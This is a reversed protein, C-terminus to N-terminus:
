KKFASPAFRFALLDTTLRTILVITVMVITVGMIVPFDRVPPYIEEGPLVASVLMSGLGQINILKEVIITTGLMFIFKNSLAVFVPYAINLVIHKIPSHGRAIVAKIFTSDKIATVEQRVNRSIEGLAGDAIGLAIIGWFYATLSNDGPSHWILYMILLIVLAPVSSILYGLLLTSNWVKSKPKLGTFFGITVGLLAAILIGGIVLLATRKLGPLLMDHLVHQGSHISIGWNGKIIEALYIPFQSALPIDQKEKVLYVGKLNGGPAFFVLLFVILLAGIITTTFKVFSRLWIL